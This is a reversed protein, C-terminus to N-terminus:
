HDQLARGKLFISIITYLEVNAFSGTVIISESVPIMAISKAYSDCLFCHKYNQICMHLNNISINLGSWEHEFAEIPM